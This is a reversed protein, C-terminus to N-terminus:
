RRVSVHKSKNCLLTYLLFSNKPFLAKGVKCVLREKSDTCNHHERGAWRGWYRSHGAWIQTDSETGSGDVSARSPVHLTRYRGANIM